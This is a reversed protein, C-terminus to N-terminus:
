ARARAAHKKYTRAIKKVQKNGANRLFHPGTGATTYNRVRRKSDGGFEQFRAYEKYMSIRRSHKKPKTTRKAARLDGSLGKPATNEVERTIEDQAEEMADDLVNYLSRTFQPLKNKVIAKSM